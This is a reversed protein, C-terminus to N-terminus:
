DFYPDGGIRRVNPLDIWGWKGNTERGLHVDNGSMSLAIVSDDSPHALYLYKYDYNKVTYVMPKGSISVTWSGDGNNEYDGSGDSQIYKEPLQLENLPPRYRGTSHVDAKLAAVMNEPDQTYADRIFQGQSDYIFVTPFGGFDFRSLEPNKEGDVKDLLKLAIYNESIYDQFEETSLVNNELKVCWGCWSPATILIFINKHANQAAALAEDYSTLWSVNGAFLISPQLLILTLLIFPYVTNHRRPSQRTM